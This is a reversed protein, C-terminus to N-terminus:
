KGFWVYSSPQEPGDEVEAQAATAASDIALVRLALVSDAAAFDEALAALAERERAAEGRREWWADIGFALLISFVIVVGEVLM